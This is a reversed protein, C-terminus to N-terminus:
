VKRSSPTIKRKNSQKGTEEGELMSNIFREAVSRLGPPLLTLKHSMEDVWVDEDEADQPLLGAAKYISTTDIKLSRAFAQLTEPDAKRERKLIRSVAADSLGSRRALETPKWGKEDLKDQLWKPFDTENMNVSPLEQKGSLPNSFNVM